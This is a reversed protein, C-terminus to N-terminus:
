LAVRAEFVDSQNSVVPSIQLIYSTVSVQIDGILFVKGLPSYRLGLRMHTPSHEHIHKIDKNTALYTTHLTLYSSDYSM